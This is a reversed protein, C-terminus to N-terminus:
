LKEGCKACFFIEIRNMVEAPADHFDSNCGYEPLTDSTASASIDPHEVKTELDSFKREETPKEGCESRRRRDALEKRTDKCMKVIEEETYNDDNM